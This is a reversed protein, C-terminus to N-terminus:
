LVASIEDSNIHVEAKPSTPGSGGQGAQTTSSQPGAGTGAQQSAQELQVLKQEFSQANAEIVTPAQRQAVPAPKKLVLVIAVLSAVLTTISIIRDLKLKM